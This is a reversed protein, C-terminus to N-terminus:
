QEGEVIKVKVKVTDGPNMKPINENIKSEVLTSIDM